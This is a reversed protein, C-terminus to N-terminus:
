LATHDKFYNIATLAGEFCINFLPHTKSLLSEENSCINLINDFFYQSISLGSLGYCTHYFDRNKGPKDIIGGYDAQCCILIYEQLSQRDFLWNQNDQLYESDMMLVSHIIPFMGAQWFSYCCDVLKNTRGQFGGEFRMQKNVLWYTLRQINCLHEKGLLKLAALACFSYGGHAENFPTAGFGGEYTQCSLVWDGVKDFLNPDLQELNCLKAITIACYTGRVDEEGDTHMRMAGNEEILSKMWNLLPKIKIIKLARESNLTCLANIAAYTTALHSIQGPGGGFGGTENQCSNLFETVGDIMEESFDVDLLYLSHLIWYCIWPRSSDLCEFSSPLHRIGKSCFKIHHNKNLVPLDPDLQHERIFKEYFHKVLDETAIQENITHTNDNVRKKTMLNFFNPDKLCRISEHSSPSPQEM